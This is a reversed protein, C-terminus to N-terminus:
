KQLSGSGSNEPSVPKNKKASNLKYEQSWQEKLKQYDDKKDDSETILKYHYAEELPIIIDARMNKYIKGKYEKDQLKGAIIYSTEAQILSILDNRDNQILVSVGFRKGNYQMTVSTSYKLDRPRVEELTEALIIHYQTNDREYVLYKTEPKMFNLVKQIIEEKVDPTADLISVKTKKQLQIRKKVFDTGFTKEMIGDM